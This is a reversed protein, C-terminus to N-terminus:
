CNLILISSLTGFLAEVPKKAKTLLHFFVRDRDESGNSHPIAIVVEAVRFM